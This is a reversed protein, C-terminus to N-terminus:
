KMLGVVERMAEVPDAAGLISGSLAIGAVGAARLQPIDAPMIGGIAVLPLRIDAEQMRSLLTRYGELGLTPSLNKKTTTFRFPGCGIYNAGQAALREIDEFTNATGGIICDPGLLCRAEDVPMDTRGLHVGDAGLPRVLEVHDDLLFVAGAARCLPQVERGVRLLEEATAEKMRLQIWRCGGALAM